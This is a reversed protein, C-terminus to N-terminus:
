PIGKARLDAAMRRAGEANMGATPSEAHILPGRLDVYVDGFYRGRDDPTTM